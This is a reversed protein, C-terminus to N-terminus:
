EPFRCRPSAHCEALSMMEAQDVAGCEDETCKMRKRRERSPGVAQRDSRNRAKDVHEPLHHLVVLPRIRRGVHGDDEVLARMRESVVEVFQVLRVPLFHGLVQSGLHRQCAIGGAGEVDGAEFFLAELRIVDNGRECARSAFGASSDRDHRGVLIEHLKDSVAHFHMVGHLVDPDVGLADLFPEADTGVLHDINM